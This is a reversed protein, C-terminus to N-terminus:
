SPPSAILPRSAAMSQVPSSESKIRQWESARNRRAIWGSVAYGAAGAFLLPALYYAALTGAPTLSTYFIANAWISVALGVLLSAASFRATVQANLSSIRELEFDSVPYTNMVRGMYVPRMTAGTPVGEPEINPTGQM